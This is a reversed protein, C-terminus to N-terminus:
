GAETAFGEGPRVFCAPRLLPRVWIPELPHLPHRFAMAPGADEDWGTTSSVPSEVPNRLSAALETPSLRAADWPGMWTRGLLKVGSSTSVRTSAAATEIAHLADVVQTTGSLELAWITSTTAANGPTFDTPLTAPQRTTVSSLKFVLPARSNLDRVFVLVSSASALSHFLFLSSVAIAPLLIHYVHQLEAPDLENHRTWTGIVLKRAPFAVAEQSSRSVPEPPRSTSAVPPAFFPPVPCSVDVSSQWAYTAYFAEASGYFANHPTELQGPPALQSPRVADAEDTRAPDGPLHSATAASSGVVASVTSSASSSSQGSTSAAARAASAAEKRKQRKEDRQRKVWWKGLTITAGVSTLLAECERRHQRNAQKLLRGPTAEFLGELAFVTAPSLVEPETTSSSAAQAPPPPPLPPPLPPPQPPDPPSPSDSSHGFFSEYSGPLPHSARRPQIRRAPM